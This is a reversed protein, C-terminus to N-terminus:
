ATAHAVTHGTALANGHSNGHFPTRQRASALDLYARSYAPQRSIPGPQPAPLRELCRAVREPTGLDSWGCPPVALLRLRSEHGSIVHRSFDIDPLEDYLDWLAAPARDATLSEIMAVLVEPFRAAYLNLLAQGRAAMIFSNWVGGERLLQLAVEASPKEIFRDVLQIGNREAAGPKIYGLEPDMEDPAIGLLVIENGYHELEAAARQMRAQLISEYRVFHDSPLIVIRAEPDQDLIHLLPLLIGNGTGRNRPQVVINSAPLDALISTWWGRHSDAVIAVVHTRDTIALARDLTEALLSDGGRLSCFQKPVANGASDTTLSRLRNGDGAALVIVWTAGCNAGCTTGNM